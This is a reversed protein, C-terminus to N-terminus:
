LHRIRYRHPEIVCFSCKLEDEGHEQMLKQLKHHVKEITKPTGRLLIIGISIKEKLFLLAGFGKDRTILLRNAESAAELLEEDSAREMGLEKVTVVNHGWEKLKDITLKYVDQDALILM